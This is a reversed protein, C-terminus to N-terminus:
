PLARVLREYDSVTADNVLIEKFYRDDLLTESPDDILEIGPRNVRILRGGMRTLIDYENPYRMDDIIVGRGTRLDDACEHLLKKVWFDPDISRYMRGFQILLDRVTMKKGDIDIEKKKNNLLDDMTVLYHFEAACMRKIPEAFSVIRHGPREALIRAATTKGSYAKGSLAIINHM